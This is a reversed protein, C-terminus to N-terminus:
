KKQCVVKLFVPFVSNKDEIKDLGRKIITKAIKLREDHEIEGQYVIVNAGKGIAEAIYKNGDTHHGLLAFFLSGPFVNRSDFVIDTVPTIGIVNLDLPTKGDASLAECEIASLLSSLKKEMVVM